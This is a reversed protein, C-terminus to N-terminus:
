LCELENEMIKVWPVRRRGGAAGQRGGAAGRGGGAGGGGGGEGKFKSKM